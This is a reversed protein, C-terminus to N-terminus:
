PDINVPHQDSRNALRRHTTFDIQLSLTRVSGFAMQFMGAHASGSATIEIALSDQRPPLDAWRLVDIDSGSYPSQDYGVDAYDGYHATSVHKEGVLYVQSMGDLVDRWGVDSHLYCVGNDTAPDPWKYTAQDGEALTNPGAFQGNASNDGGNMVYDSRSM